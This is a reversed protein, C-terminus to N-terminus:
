ANDQQLANSVQNTKVGQKLLKNPRKSEHQKNKKNLLHKKRKIIAEKTRKDIKKNKKKAAEHRLRQKPINDLSTLMEGIKASLTTRPKLPLPINLHSMHGTDVSLDYEKLPSRGSTLRTKRRVNGKLIM